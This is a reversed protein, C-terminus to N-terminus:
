KVKDFDIIHKEKQTLTGFNESMLESKFEIQLGLGELTGDFKHQSSDIQKIAILNIEESSLEKVATIKPFEKVQHETEPSSPGFMKTCRVTMPKKDTTEFNIVTDHLNQLYIFSKKEFLGIDQDTYTEPDLGLVFM